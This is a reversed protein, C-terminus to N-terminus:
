KGVGLAKVIRTVNGSVYEQYDFGDMAAIAMALGIGGSPLGEIDTPDFELATQALARAWPPMPKGGDHIAIRIESATRELELGIPAGARDDFGHRIVNSVLEVLAMEIMGREAALEDEPLIAELWPRLRRTEELRSDLVIRSHTLAGM